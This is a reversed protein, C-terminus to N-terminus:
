NFAVRLSLITNGSEFALSRGVVDDTAISKPFRSQLFPILVLAFWGQQSPQHLWEFNVLPSSQFGQYGRFKTEYLGIVFAPSGATSAISASKVTDFNSMNIVLHLLSMYEPSTIPSFYHRSKM